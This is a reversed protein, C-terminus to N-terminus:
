IDCKDKNVVIVDGVSVNLVDSVGSAVELVYKADREPRFVEPFTEPTINKRLDVVGFEDNLWIIDIAFKMNKMWIGHRDSEGFIFLMGRDSLLNERGGFGKRLESSTKALDVAIISNGFYIECATMESVDTFSGYVILLSVVILAFLLLVFIKNIMQPDVLRGATLYPSSDRYWGAEGSSRSMGPVM